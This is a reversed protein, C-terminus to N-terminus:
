SESLKKYSDQKYLILNYHWGGAEQLNEIYIRKNHKLSTVPIKVKPYFEYPSITIWNKQSRSTRLNIEINLVRAVFAWHHHKFDEWQYTGKLLKKM